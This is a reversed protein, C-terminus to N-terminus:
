LTLCSQVVLMCEREFEGGMWAAVYCQASNWVSYLLNMNTIWKSYLLLKRLKIFDLKEVLYKM